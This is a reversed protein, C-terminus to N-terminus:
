SVKLDNENQLLKIEYKLQCTKRMQHRKMSTYSIYEGCKECVRIEKLYDLIKDRNSDYYKKNIRKRQEDIAM